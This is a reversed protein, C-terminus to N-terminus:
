LIALYPGEQWVRSRARVAVGAKWSSVTERMSIKDGDVGHGCDISLIGGLSQVRGFSLYLIM